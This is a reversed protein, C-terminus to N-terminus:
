RQSTPPYGRGKAVRGLATEPGLLRMPSFGRRTDARFARRCVLLLPQRPQCWHHCALSHEVRRRIGPIHTM